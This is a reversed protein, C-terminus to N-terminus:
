KWLRKIEKLILQQENSNNKTYPYVRLLMLILLYDNSEINLKKFIRQQLTELEVDLYVTHNRLFWKCELDQRLKALDFVWSDYDSTLPDILVFKKDNSYIVNEFTFDGHYVSRPLTKPLNNILQEKTFPFLNDPLWELKKYYVDTYDKDVSAIDFKNITTVIFDVLIDLDHYKLYQRMDLGQIYEMDLVTDSAQLIDPVNVYESLINLREVNRGIAGIKRVLFKESDKILFVQDGSLGSLQKVIYSM